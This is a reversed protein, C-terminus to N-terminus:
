LVLFQVLMQRLQANLVSGLSAGGVELVQKLDLRKFLGLIGM